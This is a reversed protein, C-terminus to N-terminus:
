NPDEILAALEAMSNDADAQTGGAWVGILVVRELRLQRYEVETVDELETALGAVRRLGQRAELDYGEGDAEFWPRGSADILPDYNESENQIEPESHPATTRAASATRTTM